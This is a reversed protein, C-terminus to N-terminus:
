QKDQRRKVRKVYIASAVATIIAALALGAYPVCPALLLGLLVLRDVPVISAGVTPNVTITATNSKAVVGIADTVNVYLTHSGVDGKTAFYNVNSTAGYFSGDLYWYYSYPTTGGSVFSEFLQYQGVNLIAGLPSIAVSLAPNVTIFAVYSSNHAGSSDTVGVFLTFNGAISAIFTCTSAASIAQDTGGLPGEWWIYTYPRTGGTVTSTFTQSEGVDLTVKTPWITVILADNPTIAMVYAGVFVSALLLVFLVGSIIPKL